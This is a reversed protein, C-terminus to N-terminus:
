PAKDAIFQVMMQVDAVDVVGDGNLDAMKLNIEGGDRLYGALMMRDAIDVRGDGNLDGLVVPIAAVTPATVVPERRTIVPPPAPDLSASRKPEVDIQTLTEPEREPEPKPHTNVPPDHRVAVEPKPEPKRETREAPKPPEPKVPTVVVPKTEPEGRSDIYAVIGLLLLAAAAVGAFAFLLTRGVNRRPRLSGLVADDLDAMIQAPATAPRRLGRAIARVDGFRAACSACTKLHREIERQPKEAHDHLVDNTLKACLVAADVSAMLEAPPALTRLGRAISLVETFRAACSACAKLHAAIETSPREAHDLLADNTVTICRLVLGDLKALLDAPPALKRLGRALTGVDDLRAACAPCGKVHEEVAPSRDLLADNTLEKCDM